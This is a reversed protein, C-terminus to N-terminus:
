ARRRTAVSAAFSPRPSDPPRPSPRTRLPRTRAAAAAAAAPRRRRRRFACRDGVAQDRAFEKGAWWLAATEADFYEAPAAARLAADGGGGGGGDGGDELLLRAPEDAPLGGPFAVHLAGRVSDLASTLAPATLAVGAAVQAASALAVADAITRELLSTAGPCAASGGDAPAAAGALLREVAAALAAIRARANAVACLERLLADCSTGLSTEFIFSQSASTQCVIVVM